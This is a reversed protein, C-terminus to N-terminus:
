SLFTLTNLIPTFYLTDDTAFDKDRGDLNIVFRTGNHRAILIQERDVITSSNPVPSTQCTYSTWDIGGVNRSGQVIATHPVLALYDQLITDDPAGAQDPSVVVLQMYINMTSADMGYSQANPPANVTWGTPFRVSFLNLPGLVANSFSIPTATPAPSPTATPTPTKTAARRPTAPTSGIGLFTLPAGKAAVALGAFAVLLVLAALLAVPIPHPTIRRERRQKPAPQPKVEPIGLAHRLERQWKEAPQRAADILVSAHDFPEPVYDADLILNIFARQGRASQAELGRFAGAELRMWYSRQAAPTCIRIFVDRQRIADQIRQSLDQGASLSQVDFWYDVGWSRLADLLPQCRPIDDHAHSIFVTGNGTM